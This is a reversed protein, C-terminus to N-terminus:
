GVLSAFWVNYSFAALKVFFAQHTLLKRASVLVNADIFVLNLPCRWLYGRWHLAGVGGSLSHPPTSMRTLQTLPRLSGVAAKVASVSSWQCFASFTLRSAATLNSRLKSGPM